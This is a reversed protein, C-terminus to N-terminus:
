CNGAGSARNSVGMKTTVSLEIDQSIIAFQCHSKGNRICSERVPARVILALFSEMM